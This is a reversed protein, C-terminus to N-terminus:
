SYLHSAKLALLLANQNSLSIRTHNKRAVSHLAKRTKAITSADMRRDTQRDTVCRYQTVVVCALIVFNKRHAAV